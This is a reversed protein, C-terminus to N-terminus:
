FPFFIMENADLSPIPLGVKSYYLEGHTSFKTINIIDNDAMNRFVLQDIGYSALKNILCKVLETLSLTENFYFALHGVGVIRHKEKCYAYTKYVTVMDTIETKHKKVFTYVINKKPFLFHYAKDKDFYPRFRYKELSKNLKPVIQKIDDKEMLHLHGTDIEPITEMDDKTLFGVKELKPYNIPIIYEKTTCFPKLYKKTGTFIATKTGMQILRNKMEQLLFRGLGHNQLRTHICFLNIYAIQRINDEVIVEVMTATIVGVLNNHYCLGIILGTPVYKLYWYLFDRAYVLRIIKQNDEIYHNTLLKHIEDLHNTGLTKLYFNKPLKNIEM